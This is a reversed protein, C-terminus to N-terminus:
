RWQFVGRDLIPSGTRSDRLRFLSSTESEKWLELTIPTDMYLVSRMQASIHTMREPQGPILAGIAMRCAFGFSCLGQMFVRDFGHEKAYEPDVHVLNTDGTLRYLVNQVPTIYDEVTLDPIRNPIHVSSKPLPPGGFGGCDPFITSSINTCILNGAEDYVDCCTKIVAGKGEGRDYIDTIIDRYVFTGKIPDIPRNM